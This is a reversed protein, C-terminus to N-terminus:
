GILLSFIYTMEIFILKLENNFFFRKTFYSYFSIEKAHLFPCILAFTSAISVHLCEL